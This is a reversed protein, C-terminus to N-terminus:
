YQNLFFIKAQKRFKLLSNSNRIKDELSNYTKIGNHFINNKSITRNVRTVRLVEGHRTDHSHDQINRFLKSSMECDVNTNLLQYIYKSTQLRYQDELKLIENSKYYENTHENFELNNIARIAKKQLIFIKNTYNKFTGHWAEIGYTLYPHVLTSYIIKLINQPFFKNLKYLLGLSRSIKLSIESIHNKFTLHNDIHIKGNQKKSCIRFDM